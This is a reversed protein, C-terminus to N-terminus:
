DLLCSVSPAASSSYSSIDLHSIDIIFNTIYTKQIRGGTDDGIRSINNSSVDFCMLDTSLDLLDKQSPHSRKQFNANLM